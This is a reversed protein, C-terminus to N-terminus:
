LGIFVTAFMYTICVSAKIKNKQVLKVSLTFLADFWNQTQLKLKRNNFSTESFKLAALNSCMKLAHM